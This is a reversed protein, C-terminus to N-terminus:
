GPDQGGEWLAALQHSVDMAKGLAREGVVGVGLGSTSNRSPFSRAPACSRSNEIRFELAGLVTNKRVGCTFIFISNATIATPPAPPQFM